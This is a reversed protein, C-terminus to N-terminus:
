EVTVMLQEELQKAEGFYYTNNLILTTTGVSLAELEGTEENIKAVSPNSSKWKLKQYFPDNINSDVITGVFQEKEGVKFMTKLNEKSTGESSAWVLKGFKFEDSKKFEIYYKSGVTTKAWDGLPNNFGLCQATASIEVIDGKKLKETFFRDAIALRYPGDNISFDSRFIDQTGTPTIAYGHTTYNGDEPITYLFVDSRNYWPNESIYENDALDIYGEMPQGITLKTATETSFGHDDTIITLQDKIEPNQKSCVNIVTRGFGKATVTGSQDVEAISSDKSSWLLDKKKAGEPALTTDLVIPKNKYVIKPDIKNTIAVSAIKNEESTVSDTAATLFLNAKTAWYEGKSTNRWRFGNYSVLTDGAELIPVNDQQNGEKVKQATFYQLELESPYILQVVIGYNSDAPIEVEKTPINNMGAEIQTGEAILETFISSDFYDSEIKKNVYYIKYDINNQITLFAVTKLIEENTNTQYNAALYIENSPNKSAEIKGWADSTSNVYSNFNDYLESKSSIASYFEGTAIFIDEYSVYFYGKDGFSTGWSNKVIFAGEQKPQISFNDKSYDDDWGVITVSHDIAPRGQSSYNPIKNFDAVPVYSAAKGNNYYKKSHSVTESQYNYTVAGSEQIFRKIKTRKIEKESESITYENLPIHKLENMALSSKKAKVMNFDDNLLPKNKAEVTPTTFEKETVGQNNLMNQFLPYQHFGGQNLTRKEVLQLFITNPNFGDSFANEASYYNYYNPSLLQEIGTQKQYAASIIDTSSYAWCIGIGGQSRVTQEFDTGRPDLKKPLIGRSQVIEKSQPIVPEDSNWSGKNGDIGLPHIEILEPTDLTDASVHLSWTCLFLGTTLLGIMIKKM